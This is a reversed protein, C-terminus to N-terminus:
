MVVTWFLIRSLVSRAQGSRPWRQPREEGEDEGVDLHAHRRWARDLSSMWTMARSGMTLGGKARATAVMESKPRLPMMVRSM